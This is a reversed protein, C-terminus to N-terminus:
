HILSVRALWNADRYFVAGGLRMPTIRPVNTGDTFTARVVDFQGEVGWVGALVKAVDYQAQFEGGRFIADRQSYVAQNLEGAPNACSDCDENCMVGTLRRFIFGPFRTYYATAEFRLPGTARRLGIEISNATEIGLNPNGIDFTATADHAGRSFLEAPKPARETYQATISAVLQGPLSQLLGISASKPTFSLNRATPPGIDGPNANLDFLDPIFAPTTGSLSVHEVRGAIQAKTSDSFKFENFVYGAVRSNKNPDWLGNLPSGPDDPSPATLEQHGAQLGYATTVAAFRANFPAMQVEVRGEQERNTFTQRVGTSFLDAPDALGIENHKYDTAGAWFRVADIAAADPRYEGKATFKTQHADIRTQHDAGDIGPIRYLTDNQTI